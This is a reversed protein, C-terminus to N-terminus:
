ILFHDIFGVFAREPLALDDGGSHSEEPRSFNVSGAPTVAFASVTIKMKVSAMNALIKIKASLGYTIADARDGSKVVFQDVLKQILVLHIAKDDVKGRNSLLKKFLFMFKGISGTTM